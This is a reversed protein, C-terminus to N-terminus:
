SYKSQQSTPVFLSFLELFISVCGPVSCGRNQGEHKLSGRVGTRGKDCRLAELTPGHNSVPLSHNGLLCKTIDPSQKPQYFKSFPPISSANQWYPGPISGFMRYCVPFRREKVVFVWGSRLIQLGLPSFDQEKDKPGQSKRGLCGTELAQAEWGRSMHPPEKFSVHHVQIHPTNDVAPTLGRESVHPPFSSSHSECWWTGTHCESSDSFQFRLKWAM